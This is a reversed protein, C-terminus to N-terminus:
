KKTTVKDNADELKAQEKIRQNIEELLLKNRQNYEDAYLRKEIINRAETLCNKKMLNYAYM